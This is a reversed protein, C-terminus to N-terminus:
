SLNTAAIAQAPSERSSGERPALEINWRKLWLFLTMLGWLHYGANIRRDMHDRILAETADATFIGSKRVADPTVTDMLLPRLFGRFWDHTPIDFGKKSRYLISAPLKDKMLHKLLFKQKSGRIKMNEPLNAAFEVIRHDLFPPRVEISHAMSMRDVKYLIDDPLYYQQDVMMYRNLYGIEGASAVDAFLRGGFGKGRNQFMGNWFFHAEDPHLRSGALFRKVKYEFSIKENSVPLLNEAASQMWRRVTPPIARVPRSVRDAMYTLYGGFLEDGGDGSLAVTVHRSTMKSLFWVPLAGADAGPEDSYYSFDETARILDDGPQIEIEHHDTGYRAAVERFYRSEDCSRAQFGVSFTQLPKSSASAAYHLITSSDIGGSSWVGLPVDSTMQERMADKLLFDLRETADDLRLGRQPQFHLKWYREISVRGARYEFFHGPLLKHVGKVLTRPAPVYNLALFDQVAERDLERPVNPHEFIAKLESGFYLESGQRYYYLPKIGMRDRALILRKERNSWLAVAFMGRFRRFCDTDWERFAHLVVETDCHSEFQYGLGELETRLETHNYIEGNYAVVTGGDPSIMPQDGGTLDIIKLRVAGLCIEPSVYVDQQNPGRHFLSATVREILERSAVSNNHTFGAIGCM